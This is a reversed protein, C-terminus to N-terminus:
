KEERWEQWSKLMKSDEHINGILTKNRLNIMEGGYLGAGTQANSGKWIHCAALYHGARVPDWFVVNQVLEGKYKHELIDGCHIPKKYRDVGILVELVCDDFSSSEGVIAVDGDRFADSHFFYVVQDEYDIDIVPQFKNRIKDWARVKPIERM